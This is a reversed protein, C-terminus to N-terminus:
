IMRFIGSCIVTKSKSELDASYNAHGAGDGDLTKFAGDIDGGLDHSIMMIQPMLEQRHEFSKLSFPVLQYRFTIWDIIRSPDQRTLTM